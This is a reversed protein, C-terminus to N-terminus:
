SDTQYRAIYTLRISGTPYEGSGDVAMETASLIADIVSDSWTEDASLKAEISEALGDLTDDISDDDTVKQTAEVIIEMERILRKDSINQRESIETNMYINIEPLNEAWIKKTRNSHVSGSAVISGDDLLATVATRITQRAHTM